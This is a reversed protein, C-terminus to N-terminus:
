DRGWKWMMRSENSKGKGAGESFGVSQTLGSCQSILPVPFYFIEKTPFDPEVLSIFRDLYVLRDERARVRHSVGDARRKM